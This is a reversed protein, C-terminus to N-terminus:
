GVYRAVLALSDDASRGYQSLIHDALQQPPRGARFAPHERVFDGQVGDTTLILTDGPQLPVTVPRLEPLRYGVIGRRQLLSEYPKGSTAASRVLLGDVNGVGLWTMVGSAPGGSHGNRAISALSMVAGRTGRLAQHCYRLLWAPPQDARSRLVTIAAEAARSAQFGHGLGDVVVVLVGNSFPEVLYQDGSEGEGVLAGSAVGWEILPRSHGKGTTM